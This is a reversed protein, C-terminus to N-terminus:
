IFIHFLDRDNPKLKINKREEKGSAACSLNKGRNACGFGEQPFGKEGAGEEVM